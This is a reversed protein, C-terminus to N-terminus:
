AGILSLWQPIDTDLGRLINPPPAHRPFFAAEIIEREDPRPTGDCRGVVVHVRNGAGHLSDLTVAALKADILRCGLEEYLERSAALLPDENPELGGGPPMWGAHGYSHRVLLVHGKEDLALIRVGAVEPKTIRWLIKRLAHARRLAFRHARPPLRHLLGEITTQLRSL